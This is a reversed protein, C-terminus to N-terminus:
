TSRSEKPTIDLEQLTLKSQGKSLNQCHYKQLPGLVPPGGAHQTQGSERDVDGPWWGTWVAKGCIFSRAGLSM